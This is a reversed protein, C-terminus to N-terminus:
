EIEAIRILTVQGHVDSMNEIVTVAKRMACEKTKHTLLVLPVTTQDEHERQIVAEISIHNSALEQAIAALVGANDAVKIKLYYASTIDGIDKIRPSELEAMKRGLGPQGEYHQNQIIRAVDILDGLVASGTPGAGAGAGSYLTPGVADGKVLVANMVGNINGLLKDSKILCPHVRLEVGDEDESAIALHKIFYGLESAYKMDEPTIKSIGETYVHDFALPMDFAISALIALKHAADIGEVDFTPDSEAYGLAQAEALVDSFDRGKDFMESLIFNGTGNIIGALYEIKNGALSDRIAKIIPIGGAVAAEYAITVKAKDAKVFIENGHEAILAKNATVVHKGNAIAALILEKALTTGGMLEVIVNIEPDNVLEFPDTTLRIGTTDCQRPKNLDRASAAVVLIPRGVRSQILDANNQLTNIAGGGVTGLGIVGVKVPKLESM